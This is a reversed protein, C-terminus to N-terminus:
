TTPGPGPQADTSKKQRGHSGLDDCQVGSGTFITTKKETAIPVGFEAIANALATQRDGVQLTRMIGTAPVRGMKLSGTSVCCTTGTRPILNQKIQHRAIANLQGYDAKPDIRWFRARRHRRAAPQIPLWAPPLARLHHGFVGRHGDHDAHAAAGNAAGAGRGASGPQRSIGPVVIGNLGTFQNSMM